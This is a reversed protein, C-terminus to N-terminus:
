STRGVVTFDLLEIEPTLYRNTDGPRLGGDKYGNKSGKDECDVASLPFHLL